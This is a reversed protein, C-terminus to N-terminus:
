LESFCQFNHKKAHGKIVDLRIFFIDMSDFDKFPKLGKELTQITKTGNIRKINNMIGIGHQNRSKSTQKLVNKQRNINQLTSPSEFGVSIEVKGVQTSKDVSKLSAILMLEVLDMRVLPFAPIIISANPRKDAPPLKTTPTKIKTITDIIWNNTIVFPDSRTASTVALNLRSPIGPLCIDM